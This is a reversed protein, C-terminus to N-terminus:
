SETLSISVRYKNEEGDVLLQLKTFLKNLQEADYDGNFELHLGNSLFNSTVVPTHIEEQNEKSKLKAAVEKKTKDATGKRRSYKTKVPVKLDKMIKHFSANSTIGMREMIEKNSYLERWRILMDKQLDEARQSFEEKTLVKDLMNTVVVEGNLKKREKASMFYYPTRLASNFGHKVGKGKKSFTGRGTKKKEIVEENFIREINEYNKM